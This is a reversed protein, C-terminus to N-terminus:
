RSRRSFFSSAPARSIKSEPERSRPARGERYGQKIFHQQADRFRGQMIAERVDPYETLYFDEDV